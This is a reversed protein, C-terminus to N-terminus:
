WNKGLSSVQDAGFGVETGVSGVLGKATPQKAFMGAERAAAGTAKYGKTGAKGATLLGKGAGSVAKGGLKGAALAGKGATVAGQALAGWFAEKVIAAHPGQAQNAVRMLAAAKVSPGRSDVNQLGAEDAYGVNNSGSWSVPTRQLRDSPEKPAPEEDWDAVAESFAEASETSAVKLFSM